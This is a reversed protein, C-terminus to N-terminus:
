CFFSKTEPTGNYLRTELSLLISNIYIPGATCNRLFKILRTSHTGCPAVFSGCIWIVSDHMGMHICETVIPRLMVKSCKVMGPRKAEHVLWRALSLKGRICAMGFANIEDKYREFAVEVTTKCIELLRQIERIDSLEHIVTHINTELAVRADSESILGVDDRLMWEVVDLRVDSSIRTFATRMYADSHLNSYIERRSLNSYIERRSRKVKSSRDRIYQAAKLNGYTCMSFLWVNTDRPHKPWSPVHEDMIELVWRVLLAAAKQSRPRVEIHQFPEGLASGLCTQLKNGDFVMGEFPNPIGGRRFRRDVWEAMKTSGSICVDLMLDLANHFPDVPGRDKTDKESYKNPSVNQLLVSSDTILNNMLWDAVDVKGARIAVMLVETAGHTIDIQDDSTASAKHTNTPYLIPVGRYPGGVILDSQERTCMCTGSDDQRLLVIETMDEEEESSEYKSTDEEEEEESRECLTPLVPSIIAPIHVPAGIAEKNCLMYRKYETKLYDLMPIPNANCMAAVFITRPAAVIQKQMDNSLFGFHEVLFQVLPVSGSAMAQFYLRRIDVDKYFRKPTADDKEATKKPYEHRVREFMRTVHVDCDRLLMCAVKSMGLMCAMATAKKARRLDYLPRRLFSAMWTIIEAIKEGEAECPLKPGDESRVFVNQTRNPSPIGVIPVIRHIEEEEEEEEEDDDTPLEGFDAFISSRAAYADKYKETLLPWQLARWGIHDHDVPETSFQELLWTAIDLRLAEIATRVPRYNTIRLAVLTPHLLEFTKKVASFNGVRCAETMADIALLSMEISMMPPSAPSFGTWAFINKILWEIAIDDCNAIALSVVRYRRSTLQYSHELLTASDLSPIEYYSPLLRFVVKADVLHKRMICTAVHTAGLVATRAAADIPGGYAEIAKHAAICRLPFLVEGMRILDALWPIRRENWTSLSSKYEKGYATPFVVTHLVHALNLAAMGQWLMTTGDKSKTHQICGHFAM